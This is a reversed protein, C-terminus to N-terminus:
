FLHPHNVLYNRYGTIKVVYIPCKFPKVNFTSLILYEAKLTIKRQKTKRHITVQNMMMVHTSSSSASQSAEGFGSSSDESTSVEPNHFFGADSMM